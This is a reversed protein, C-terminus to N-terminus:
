VRKKVKMDPEPECSILSEVIKILLTSIPKFPATNILVAFFNLVSFRILSLESDM